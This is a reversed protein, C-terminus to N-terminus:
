AERRVVEAVVPAGGEEFTLELKGVAEADEEGAERADERAGVARAVQGVRRRRDGVPREAGDARRVDHVHREHHEPRADARAGVELHRLPLHVGDEPRRHDHRLKADDEGGEPLRQLAEDDRRLQEVRDGGGAGDPQELWEGYECIALGLAGQEDGVEDAAGDGHEAREVEDGGEERHAEEEAVCAHVEVGEEEVKELIRVPPIAWAGGPGVVRVRRGGGM